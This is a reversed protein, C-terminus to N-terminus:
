KSEDRTGTHRGVGGWGSEGSQRATGQRSPRVALKFGLASAATGWPRGSATGFRHSQWAVVKLL